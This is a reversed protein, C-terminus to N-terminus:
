RSSPRSRRRRGRRPRGRRAGHQGARVTDHVVALAGSVNLDDDMAARFAQPCSRTPPRCRPRRAPAGTRGPRLFGEIRDVAAEAEALSGEHYEIMSRYHAATLYYRVALPRAVRTV